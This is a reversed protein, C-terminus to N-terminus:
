QSRPPRIAGRERLEELCHVGASAAAASTTSNARGQAATPSASLVGSDSAPLTTISVVLGCSGM